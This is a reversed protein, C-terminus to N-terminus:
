CLDQGTSTRPQAFVQGPLIPGLVGGPPGGVRDGQGLTVLGTGLPNGPSELNSSTLSTGMDVVQGTCLLKGRM